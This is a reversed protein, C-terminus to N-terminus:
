CTTAEKAWFHTYPSEDTIESEYWPREVIWPRHVVVRLSGERLLVEVLSMLQDDSPGIEAEVVVAFGAVPWRYTKLDANDPLVLPAVANNTLLDKARQWCRHGICVCVFLPRQEWALRAQLQQGYPPLRRTTSNRKRPSTKYSGQIARDPAKEYRAPEM